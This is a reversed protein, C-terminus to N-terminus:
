DGFKLPWTKLAIKALKTQREQIEQIGWKEYESVQKTIFYGSNSYVARKDSFIRNGLERNQNTRLLTMNGLMRQAARAEDDNVGWEASPTLPLVHELSIENVEENAVYEPQDDEKMTKELARLYYRALRPRSVRATAFAQVFEADTPVHNAMADRLDRAKSIKRSGVEQARISYQQDLMGGRGGYILFRVSWSVFLRFAKETEVQDFKQVVSFLLPRIQEVQLHVALTEVSGRLSMDYNSWKPHRSSWLAVYDQVGSSANTIFSMTKFESTLEAKIEEALERARTRGHTTIWLHRMYSVLRDDDDGDLTEIASVVSNWNTWAEAIREASRGLIYNKLIDAQSARLGRDNLTEFMRFAVAEDLVTVVAIHASKEIFGVWKLLYEAHSQDPLTTLIDTVFTTALQSARLIRKNSARQPEVDQSEVYKDESPGVLIRRLFFENDQDNLKIRPVVEETDRDINRLFDMDMSAASGSRHIDILKDRIRCLLITVTAIRQQGDSIIPMGKDPKVLVITGLFYDETGDNIAESFDQFLTLIHRDEWAYSRQNLPVELRGKKLLEGIGMTDFEFKIGPM